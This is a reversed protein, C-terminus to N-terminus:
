SCHEANKTMASAAAGERKVANTRKSAIKAPPAEITQDELM